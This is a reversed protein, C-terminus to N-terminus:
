KEEKGYEKRAKRLAALEERCQNITIPADYDMFESLSCIFEVSPKFVGTKDDMYGLMYLSLEEAHAPGQGSRVAQSVVERIDDVPYPLFFPDNFVGIKDNKYAYYHRIM